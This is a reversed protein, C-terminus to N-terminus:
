EARRAARRRELARAGAACLAVWASSWLIAGVVDSLFHAGLYLRSFAVLVVMLVAGALLARRLPASAIRPLGWALIAGYLLTAGAAHGSPFSYTTLAPLADAFSPRARGFLHKLAGNIALGVPVVCAVMAVGIGDRRRALWAAFAAAYVCLAAQSHLASVARMFETLAPRAEHHLAMAIRLDLFAIADLMDAIM